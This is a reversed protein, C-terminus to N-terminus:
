RDQPVNDTDDETLFPMKTKPGNNEGETGIAFHDASNVPVIRGTGNQLVAKVAKM